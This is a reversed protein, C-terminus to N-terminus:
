IKVETKTKLAENHTILRASRQDTLYFWSWEFIAAAKSRFGILFLVHVFIWMLWAIFGTINLNGVQAVAKAKGITAMTGKDFYKFAPRQEKPKRSIIIDTVYQGAQIAVPALGPLPKGNANKINAADGIVFINSYGPITFDSEVIARGMKDLETDLSKLLPSASNGAAWVINNTPIFLDGVRVGDKNVDTVKSKLMVTVGMKELTRKTYESLEPRFDNLVRELGEILYVKSSSPNINKFEGNMSRKATEAIAGAMEVGTPGGGVVVFNLLKEQESKNIINEAQEFSWLIKERIAVADSITKVGPAFEEWHNNGFYSHRVGVAVILYDFSITENSELIVNKKDKDISIVEDLIVKINESDRLISRIPRAINSPSLAATAVQYLLPQFLYHNTKDILIVEFNSNQFKKASNLGGFGGGIIVVRERQM